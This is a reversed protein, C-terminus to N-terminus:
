TGEATSKWWAVRLATSDVLINFRRLRTPRRFISSRIRICTRDALWDNVFLVGNPRLACSTHHVMVAREGVPLMTVLKAFSSADSGATFVALFARGM